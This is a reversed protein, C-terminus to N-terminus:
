KVGVIAQKINSIFTELDDTSVAAASAFSGGGGVNECIIQVNTDIGRASLKYKNGKEQKAVVFSAKRGDIRLIEEATISILDDSMPMESYTLFFGEKVEEINELMKAVKKQTEADIKLSNAAATANAGHIELWSAAEFTKSTAHKQFQLTDLCIGNLLMQATILDINIRKSAFMLMETVLESASSASTSIIRNERPAFDISLKMRHHDVIFINNAKVRTIADPNDTRTPHANDTFFVITKEDSLQNAQHPKIFRSKVVEWYQSLAKKTTEDQTSSCIYVDKKFSKALAYIGMASGIADLDAMAHGYIIVKEITPNSLTMEVRSTFNKIRTRDVNPMIEASSGFYIPQSFPSMVVVQDGGRRQAQLLGTRAMETKTILENIGHAFGVSVSVIINNSDTKLVNHLKNFFDFKVKIMEDLSKKNTFVIFKGNANYQRYILNYKERLGDLVAIISKNMNFMQDESLISQYLNFNDIELEGVVILEDEYLTITNKEITVDRIVLYNQIEFIGVKYHYDNHSLNYERRKTELDMGISILFDNLKKGILNKGFRTRIFESVYIIDGQNDHIIVGTQNYDMIEDVFKNYTSKIKIQREHYHKLLVFGSLSIMIMSLILAAIMLSIWVINQEVYIIALSEFFVFVGIILSLITLILTSKNKKM